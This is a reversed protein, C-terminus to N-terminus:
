AEDDGSNQRVDVAKARWEDEIVVTRDDVVRVNTL